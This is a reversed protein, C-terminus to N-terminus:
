RRTNRPASASCSFTPSQSPFLCTHGILALNDPRCTTTFHDLQLYLALYVSLAALIFDPVSSSPLLNSLRRWSYLFPLFLYYNCIPLRSDQRSSTLASARSTVQRPVREIAVKAPAYNLYTSNSCHM